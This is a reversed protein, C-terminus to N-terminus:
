RQVVTAVAHVVIAEGRGVSDMGEATKGKISVLGPSVGLTGSLREAMAQIHPGIRPQEAIVVIDVNGVCFGLGSVIDVAKRLLEISSVDKWQPDTDPFHQGIDGAAVAGLVADTVAHCVADADSHGDLGSTYPIEVGGLVLRRGSVMRHSDYGFGVRTRPGDGVLDTNIRGRARQFDDPTTVKFNEMDGEVLRVAQGNQEVLGAEDTATVGSRGLEVADRLVDLAFGQPTQALYIQDRPLTATVFRSGAKDIFDGKKVTDIVQIAPVVAGAEITADIVQEILSVTCFPRAADHVLVVDADKRVNDVGLAVSDQRRSGGSVLRLPTESQICMTSETEKFAEPLVIVIEDVRRCKDFPKIAMGLLTKGGLNQLQKPVDGGVRTGQGGAAIVASVRM